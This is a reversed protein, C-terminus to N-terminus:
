DGVRIWRDTGTVQCGDLSLGLMASPVAPATIKITREFEMEEPSLVKITWILGSGGDQGQPLQNFVPAAMETTRWTNEAIARWTVGATRSMELTDPHFPDAFDMRRTEGTFGPLAGGSKPFMGQMLPPCGSMVNPGILAQWLGSRPGSPEDPFLDIPEAIPKGDPLEIPPQGPIAPDDIEWPINKPRCEPPGFYVLTERLSAETVDVFEKLQDRDVWAVENNRTDIALIPKDAPRDGISDRVSAVVAQYTEPKQHTYFPVGDARIAIIPGAGGCDQAAVPVASLVFPLAWFFRRM